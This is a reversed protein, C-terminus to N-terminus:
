RQFSGRSARGWGNDNYDYSDEMNQRQFGSRGGRGRGRNRGRPGNFFNGYTKDQAPNNSTMTIAQKLNRALVRTGQTANLHLGDPMYLKHQLRGRVAFNDNFCLPLKDSAQFNSLILYNLGVVKSSLPQQRCPILLSIIVRDARELCKIVCKNYLSFTEEVSKSRHNNVGVHLIIVKVNEMDDIVNEAQRLDSAPINLGNFDIRDSLRKM